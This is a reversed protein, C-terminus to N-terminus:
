ILLSVCQRLNKIDPLAIMVGSDCFVLFFLQINQTGELTRITFIAGFIDASQLTQKTFM